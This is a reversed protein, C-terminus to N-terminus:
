RYVDNYYEYPGGVCCQGGFSYIAREDELPGYM